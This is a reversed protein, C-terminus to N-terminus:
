WKKQVINQVMNQMKMKLILYLCSKNKTKYFLKRAKSGM